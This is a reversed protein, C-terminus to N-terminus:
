SPQRFHKVWFVSGGPGPIPYPYFDAGAAGRIAPAGPIGPLGPKAIEGFSLLLIWLAKVKMDKMFYEARAAWQPIRLMELEPEPL